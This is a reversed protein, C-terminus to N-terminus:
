GRVWVLIQKFDPAVNATDIRPQGVVYWGLAYAVVGDLLLRYACQRRLVFRGTTHHYSTCLLKIRFHM